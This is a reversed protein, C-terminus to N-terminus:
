RYCRIDTYVKCNINEHTHMDSEIKASSWSIFFLSWHNNTIVEYIGCKKKKPAVDNRVICFVSGISITKAVTEITATSAVVVVAVVGIEGVSQSKSGTKKHTTEWGERRETLHYTSIFYQNWENQVHNQSEKIDEMESWIIIAGKSSHWM